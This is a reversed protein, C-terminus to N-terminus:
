RVIENATYITQVDYPTFLTGGTNEFMSSTQLNSTMFTGFTYENPYEATQIESMKILTCGKFMSSYNSTGTVSTAPLEPIKNLSTCNEFMSWCAFGGSITLAPLKPPTQLSTCNAFMSQCGSTNIITANISDIVNTLSTCGSFMYYYAGENIVTAPLDPMTVLSTCNLFMDSYCYNCLTTAPLEPSSTLVSCNSFLYKVGRTTNNQDPFATLDQTYDFLHMVNGSCAVPSATSFVFNTYNNGGKALYTNMGRVYLDTGNGFPLTDSVIWSTWTEGDTSYELVPTITGLKSTNIGLTQSGTSSFKLAKISVPSAKQWVIEDELYIKEVQLNGLKVDEISNSGLNIAM